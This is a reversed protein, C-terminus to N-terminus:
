SARLGKRAGGCCSVRGTDVAAGRRPSCRVEKEDNMQLRCYKTREKCLRGLRAYGTARHLWAFCHHWQVVAGHRVQRGIRLVVFMVDDITAAAGVVQEGSSRALSRLLLAAKTHARTNAHVRFARM